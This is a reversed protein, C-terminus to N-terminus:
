WRQSVIAPWWSDTVSRLLTMVPGTGSLVIRVGGGDFVSAQHHHYQAREAETELRKMSAGM